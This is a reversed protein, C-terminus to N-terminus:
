GFCLAEIDFIRQVLPENKDSCGVLFITFVLIWIPKMIQTTQIMLNGFRNLSPLSRKVAYRWISFYKWGSSLHASIFTFPNNTHHNVLILNWQSLQAKFNELFINKFTSIITTQDEQCTSRATWWKQLQNFIVHM